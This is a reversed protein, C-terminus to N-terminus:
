EKLRFRQLKGTQTRPLTDRFEVKRPYKYPAIRAKVFAQLEEVTAPNAKTPDRLVVFATVLQGRDADPAGIVACEAVLPHELLVNEVEPGSINYGASIIMDDARAVFWFYGDEDQRYIDGTVNWGERVYAAQREPNDLYRCGTPGRVALLGTGGPPLPQGDDDLVCAQYGPVPRGTSGPRIDDGVASIFIHMMETAGIGDVIGIGTVHHWRDWTAHPLHEGASVCLRLSSLDHNVAIDAMARYATPATYLGTVGYRAITALMKDPTFSEVLVVSAGHRMPFLVLAGLGFTFAVPPSGCFRDAPTIDLLKPFCDCAAILDRHFHMTGKAKGTTGSTFAIVAVDDAATDVNVFDGPKAAMASDLTQGANGLPSFRLVHALEAVQEQVLDLEEGLRYDCLAHRIRAATCIHSLERARLLPMTAVCIGGAKLVGFWAAVLMPTNPSHLLVRNGSVLGMDEALVRAIRNAHGLLDAYSWVADEYLFAPRHGHGQEVMRDLLEVAANLRDPYDSLPPLGKDMVPWASQPPLHDRAFGDLHASPAFGSTM